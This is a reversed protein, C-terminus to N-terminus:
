SAYELGIAGGQLSRTVVVLAGAGLPARNDPLKTRTLPAMVSGDAMLWVVRTSGDPLGNDVRWHAYLVEMESNNNAINAWIHNVGAAGGMTPLCVTTTVAELEGQDNVPSAAIPESHNDFVDEEQPQYIGLADGVAYACRWIGEESTMLARDQPNTLFGWEIICASLNGAQIAERVGYYNALASTYNPPRFGGTWGHAAYAALIRQALDYGAQNQHGESAGRAATNTSGDAHLAVMADGKYDDSDATKLKVQWGNKGHIWAHIADAVRTVFDQEGTTGTSGSNRYCHGKEVVLTPM